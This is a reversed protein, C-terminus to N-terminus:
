MTGLLNIYGLLSDGPAKFAFAVVLLQADERGNRLIVMHLQDDAIHAPIGDLRLDDSVLNQGARPANGVANIRVVVVRHVAHTLSRPPKSREVLTATTNAGWAVVM